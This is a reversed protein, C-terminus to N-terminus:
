EYPRLASLLDRRFRAPVPTGLREVILVTEGTETDVRAVLHSDDLRCEDLWQTFCAPTGSLPRAYTLVSVIGVSTREDFTYDVEADVGRTQPVDYPEFLAGKFRLGLWYARTGRPLVRLSAEFTERRKTEEEWEIPRPRVSPDHPNCAAETLLVISGDDNQCANWGRFDFKVLDKNPRIDQERHWGVVDPPPADSGASGSFYAIFHDGRDFLAVCGDGPELVAARRGLFGVLRGPDGYVVGPDEAKELEDGHLPRGGKSGYNWADACDAITLERSLYTCASLVSVGLLALLFVFRTGV